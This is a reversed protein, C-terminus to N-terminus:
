IMVDRSVTSTASRSREASQAFAPSSAALFAAHASVFVARCICVRQGHRNQVRHLVGDNQHIGFTENCEGIPFGFGKESCAGGMKGAVANGCENGEAARKQRQDILHPLAACRHVFIPDIQTRWPKSLVLQDIEIHRGNDALRTRNDDDKLLPRHRVLDVPLQGMAGSGTGYGAKGRHERM